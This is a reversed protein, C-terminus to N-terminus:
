NRPNPTYTTCSSITVQLLVINATKDNGNEISLDGYSTMLTTKKKNKVLIEGYWTWKEGQSIQQQNLCTYLVGVVVLYVECQFTYVKFLYSTEM